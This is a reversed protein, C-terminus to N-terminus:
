SRNKKQMDSVSIDSRKRGYLTLRSTITNIIQFLKQHNARLIDILDTHWV